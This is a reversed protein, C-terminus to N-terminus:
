QAQEELLTVIKTTDCEKKVNLVYTELKTASIMIPIRLTQKTPASYKLQKTIAANIIINGSPDSRMLMRTQSTKRNKLVRFQGVGKVAWGGKAQTDENEKNADWVKVKARVDFLSDDDEEGPGSSTLDLQKHKEIGEEEGEANSETASEGTTAGPSTSRSVGNSANNSPPFLSTPKMPSIGFGFNSPIASAPTPAAVNFPNKSPTETATDAKAAGFLTGLPAKSPSPSTINVAPGVKNDTRKAHGQGEETEDDERAHKKSGAEPSGGFKIPSEPKWTNDGKEGSGPANPPRASTPTGFVNQSPTSSSLKGFPNTKAPSSAQSTFNFAPVSAAPGSLQGFLNIGQGSAKLPNEQNIDEKAKPTPASIRDFLSGGFPKKIAQNDEESREDEDDADGNKSGENGSDQKALKAFPNVFNAAAAQQKAFAEHQRDLGNGHLVSAPANETAEAAAPQDNESGSTEFVFGKGPVFKSKFKSAEQELKQKKKRQEEADRREWEAEDEDSDMDEAKRKEMEKKRDAASNQGFQALFNTPGSSGGFPASSSAASSAAPKFVFPSAAAKAPEGISAKTSAANSESATNARFNAISAAFPNPATESVPQNISSSQSLVSSNSESSKHSSEFSSVGNTMAAPKDLINKFMSSTNSSPEAHALSPYSVQEGDNVRARKGSETPRMTSQRDAQEDVKRKTSTVPTASVGHRKEMRHIQQNSSRSTSPRMPKSISEMAMISKKTRRYFKDLLTIQDLNGASTLAQKKIEVGFDLQKLSYAIAYQQKQETTWNQPPESPQSAKRGPNQPQGKTNRADNSQNNPKSLASIPQGGNNAATTSPQLPAKANNTTDNTAPRFFDVTENEQSGIQNDTTQTGNSPNFLASPSDSKQNFFKFPSNADQGNKNTLTGFLGSSGSTDSALTAAPQSQQAFPSSAPTSPQDKPVFLNGFPNAHIPKEENHKQPEALQRGEKTPSSGRESAGSHHSTSNMDQGISSSNEVPPKEIRDFLSRGLAKKEPSVVMADSDPPGQGQDANNPQTFSFTPFNAPQSPTSTSDATQGWNFTPASDPKSQSPVPTSQQGFSFTPMSSQQPQTSAPTASQNWNFTPTSSQQPQTTSPSAQQGWSFTPLSAQQPGASFSQQSFSFPSAPPNGTNGFINVASQPPQSQFPNPTANTVVTDEADMMDTNQYQSVIDFCATKLATNNWAHGKVDYLPESHDLNMREMHQTSGSAQAIPVLFHPILGQPVQSSNSNGFLNPTSVPANGFGGFVNQPAPAAPVIAASTAETDMEDANLDQPVSLHSRTVPSPITRGSSGFTGPKSPPATNTFVLPTSQGLGAILQGHGPVLEKLGPISSAVYTRGASGYTGPKSPPASNQFVFSQGMSPLSLPPTTANDTLRPSKPKGPGAPKTPYGEDDLEDEAPRKRAMREKPPNLHFKPKKSPTNAVNVLGPNQPPASSSKTFIFGGLHPAAVSPSLGASAADAKIVEASQLFLNNSPTYQVQATSQDSKNDSNGGFTASPAFPNSSLQSGFSFSSSPPNFLSSSATDSNSPFPPFSASASAQSSQGFTFGGSPQTNQTGNTQGFTSTGQLNNVVPSAPAPRRAGTTAPRRGGRPQAIRDSQTNEAEMLAFSNQDHNYLLLALTFDSYPM